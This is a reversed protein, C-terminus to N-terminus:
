RETWLGCGKWLIESVRTAFKEFDPVANLQGQHHDKPLTFYGPVGEFTKDGLLPTSTGVVIGVGASDDDEIWMESLRGYFAALTDSTATRQAVATFRSLYELARRKVQLCATNVTERIPDERGHYKSEWLRFCYASSGITYVTLGDGGQDTVSWDHGEVHIPIGLGLDNVAIVESWIQEAIMGHLHNVNAPDNPTGVNRLLGAVLLEQDQTSPSNGDGDLGNTWAALLRPNGIRGRAIGRAVAMAASEVDSQELSGYLCAVGNEDKVTFKLFDTVSETPATM